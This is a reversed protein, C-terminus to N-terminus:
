ATQKGALLLGLLKRVAVLSGGIAGGTLLIMGIGLLVMPEKVLDRPDPVVGRRLAHLLCLGVPLLAGFIAGELITGCAAIKRGFVLGFFFGALGGVIVQEGEWSTACLRGIILGAIAGVLVGSLCCALTQSGQVTKVGNSM